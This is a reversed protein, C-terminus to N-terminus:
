LDSTIFRLLCIGAAAAAADADAAHMMLLCFDTLIEGVMGEGLYYLDGGRFEGGLVEGERLASEVSHYEFRRGGAGVEM